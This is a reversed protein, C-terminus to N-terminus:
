TVIIITMGGDTGRTNRSRRPDLLSVQHGDGHNRNGIASGLLGDVIVPGDEEGRRNHGNEQCHDRGVHDHAVHDDLRELVQAINAFFNRVAVHFGPRFNVSGVFEFLQAGCEVFHHPM